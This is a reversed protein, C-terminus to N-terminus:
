MCITSPCQPGNCTTNPPEGCSEFCTAPCRTQCTEAGYCTPGTCTPCSAYGFVGGDESEPTTEFSEVKLDDLDLKIKKM